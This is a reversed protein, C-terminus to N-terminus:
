RDALSRLLARRSASGGVSVGVGEELQRALSICTALAAVGVPTSGTLGTLDLHIRCPKSMLAELMATQLASAGPTALVGSVVLHIQGPAAYIVEVFAGDDTAAGAATVQDLIPSLQSSVAAIM